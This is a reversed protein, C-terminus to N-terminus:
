LATAIPTDCGETVRPYFNVVEADSMTV